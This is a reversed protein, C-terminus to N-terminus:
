IAMSEAQFHLGMCPFGYYDVTFIFDIIIQVTSSDNIAASRKM